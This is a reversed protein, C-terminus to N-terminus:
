DPGDSRLLGSLTPLRLSQAGLLLEILASSRGSSWGAERLNREAKERIADVPVPRGAGGLVDRVEATLTRGDLTRVGVRAPYRAPFGSDEWLEYTMKGAVAAREGGIPDTFLSNRVEGDVLRAALVYPLSWRADHGRPPSQRAGWPEAIVPAAGTPVHCHLGDIDAPRLGESLLQEVAEVFPHIFHCCPILKYAADPLHWKEGLDGLLADLRDPAGPDDAFLTYFGHDGDLVRSPGTIGARALEAAWLGSHAAWAPQAAKVTAGEALFAFTGGPQSGAIGLADAANHTDGRMLISVLAAVFPGAASTTQFGRAQLTGPSALGMRILVEWGIVYAATMRDGDAGNAEAAALAASTLTSSGHMVSAVHTDDFELSHILAGNALAAVPAPSGDSRGLVTCRGHGASDAISTVTRVPGSVSGLIGVGLSDLLHLRASALVTDPVSAMAEAAAAVLKESLSKESDSAPTPNSNM